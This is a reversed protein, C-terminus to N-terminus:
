RADAAREFEEVHADYTVRLGDEIGVEPRWGLERQALSADLCSHELECPRLDALQPEIAVDNAGSRPRTDFTAGLPTQLLQGHKPLLGTRSGLGLGIGGLGATDSGRRV